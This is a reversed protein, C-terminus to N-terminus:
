DNPTYENQAYYKRLSTDRATFYGLLRLPSESSIARCIDSFTHPTHTLIRSIFDNDIAIAAISNPTQMSYFCAVRPRTKTLQPIGERLQPLAQAMPSCFLTYPHTRRAALSPLHVAPTLHYIHAQHFAACQERLSVIPDDYLVIDEFLTEVDSPRFEDELEPIDLRNGQGFCRQRGRYNAQTLVDDIWIPHLRDCLRAIMRYDSGCRDDWQAIVAKSSHFLVGATNVEKLTIQRPPVAMPQRWAPFGVKWLVVDDTSQAHSLMTALSDRRSLLDDDDLILVWADEVAKLLTNIHENYPRHSKDKPCRHRVRFGEIDAYHSLYAQDSNNEYSVLHRVQRHTQRQLSTRLRHFFEPRNNTRTLICIAQEHLMHDLHKSLAAHPLRQATKRCDELISPYRGELHGIQLWHQAAAFEDTIGALFLDPNKELYGSWDYAFFQKPLSLASAVHQQLHTPLKSLVKLAVSTRIRRFCTAVTNM